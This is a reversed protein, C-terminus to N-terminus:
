GILSVGFLWGHLWLVFVAYLATGALLAILDGRPRVPAPTPAERAIVALRNVVAFILFAGFLPVSALDGNALLHAAAWMFVGVLFPHKLYSKIYGAPQYAAVVFVFAVWVAAMAVYRGWFPPEYLVPAGPRYLTWGWVILALGILSFLAYIAKWRGPSVELQRERFGGAAMRVSHIAFFVILGLILIWM